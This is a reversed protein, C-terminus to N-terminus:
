KIFPNGKGSGSVTVSPVQAAAMTAAEDVKKATDLDLAGAFVDSAPDSSGNRIDTIEPFYMFDVKATVQLIDSSLDVETTPATSGGGSNKAAHVISVGDFDLFRNTHSLRDLFGKVSQYSGGGVVEAVVHRPVVPQVPEAQEALTLSAGSNGLALVEASPPPAPAALPATDVSATVDTFNMSLVSVGSQNALFNITDVVSESEKTRPLYHLITQEANKNQSLLAAYQGAKDVRQQLMAQEETQKSIQQRLDLIQSVGPKIYGIAIWLSMVVAFPFLIIKFKMPKQKKNPPKLPM